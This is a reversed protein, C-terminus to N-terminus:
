EEGFSAAHGDRGQRGTVEAIRGLIQHRSSDDISLLNEVLWCLRRTFTWSFSALPTGFPAFSSPVHTRYTLGMDDAWLWAGVFHWPRPSSTESLNLRAALRVGSEGDARPVDGIYMLTAGSGVTANPLATTVLLSVDPDVCLPYVYSREDDSPEWTAEPRLAELEAQIDEPPLSPNSHRMAFLPLGIREYASSKAGAEQVQEIINLIDDLEGRVPMGPPSSVDIECDLQETLLSACGLATYSQIILTEALVSRFWWGIDRKFLNTAYSSRLVISQASPDYIPAFLPLSKALDNLTEYAADSEEVGRVVQTEAQISFLELGEPAFTRSVEVRTRLPSPWWSWGDNEQVTWEEDVQLMQAAKDAIWLGPNDYRVDWPIAGQAPNGLREGREEIERYLAMQAPEYGLLAGREYWDIAHEFDGEASAADGLFMMSHYDGRSAGDEALAMARDIDEDVQLVLLALLGFSLAYELEVARELLAGARELEEDRVARMAVQHLCEPDDLLVGLALWRRELDFELSVDSAMALQFCLSGEGREIENILSDIGGIVAERDADDAISATVAARQDSRLGAIEHLVADTVLDPRRAV